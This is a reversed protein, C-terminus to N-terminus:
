ITECVGGFFVTVSVWCCRLPFIGHSNIVSNMFVVGMLVAGVTPVRGDLVVVVNIIQMVAVQVIQVLTVDVLMGELYTRHVRGFAGIAVSAIAMSGIVGMAGITTMFRYGM